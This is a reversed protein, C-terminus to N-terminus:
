KIMAREPPLFISVSLSRVATSRWTTCFSYAQCDRTSLTSAKRSFLSRFFLIVRELLNLGALEEDPIFVSEGEEEPQLMQGYVPASSQIRVLLARREEQDLERVLQDFM